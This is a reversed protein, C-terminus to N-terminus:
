DVKPASDILSTLISCLRDPSLLSSYAPACIALFLRRKPPMGLMAVFFWFWEGTCDTTAHGREIMM